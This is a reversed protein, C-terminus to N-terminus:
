FGFFVYIGFVYFGSFKSFEFGSSESFLFFYFGSIKSFCFFISDLFNLFDLLFASM